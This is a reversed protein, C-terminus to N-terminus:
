KEQQLELGALIAPLKSSEASSLELRLREGIMMGRVEKVLMRGTGGAERVVDIEGLKVSAEGQLNVSFVRDGPEAGGLEAFHLRITYRRPVSDEPGVKLEL